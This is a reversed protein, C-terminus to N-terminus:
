ITFRKHAGDTSVIQRAGSPSTVPPLVLFRAVELRGEFAADTEKAKGQLTKAFVVDLSVM